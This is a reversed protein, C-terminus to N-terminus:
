EPVSEQKEWWECIKEGSTMWAKKGSCYHLIKKYLIERQDKFPCHFSESHWNLCIVGHYEAVTDILKKSLQWAEECSTTSEFLTDDMIALPIELIKIERDTNLNYPRFPHCMGNRFGVRENYGLTTDYRFGAKKLFEWSDPVQFRLYHNRNGSVKRGLVKELRKKEGLIEEPDNFAYYGGHLGVEWGRDSIQGLDEELDEINYRFRTIDSGTALFYFSSCAGYHEELDMIERFNRYPSKQKGYLKWFVQEKLGSYDRKKMCTLSSLLGHKFPPYIEDVDHTLCVAFEKDAPYTSEFGNDVLFKSVAPESINQCTSAAHPFCGYQDLRRPTYEEKRTYIDWLERHQRLADNFLVMVM